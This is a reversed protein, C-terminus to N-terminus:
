PHECLPFALDPAERGQEDFVRASIGKEGFSCGVFHHFRRYVDGKIAFDPNIPYLPAGGGATVVYRVGDRKTAYFSHHHGCFAACFKYKVLLPHLRQRVPIQEFDGWTELTWPPHHFAAIKHKADSAKAKEEFWQLQDKDAFYDNSDLLFLHVDGIRRDYYMKELKFEKEFSRHLSTDHNGAAPLYEAKSRLERTVERFSKWDEESDGSDVLDGSVVVFKAGTKVIGDCIGRHVPHNYRCDGYAAFDMRPLPAVVLPAGETPADAQVPTAPAPPKRRVTPDASPSCGAAALLLLALARRPASTV